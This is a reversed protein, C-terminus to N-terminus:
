HRPRKHMCYGTAPFTPVTQAIKVVALIGLGLLALVLSHIVTTPM